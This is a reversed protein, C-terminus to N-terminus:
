SAVSFGSPSQALEGTIVVGCTAASTGAGAVIRVLIYRKSGRYGFSYVTDAELATPETGILDGAAVATFGSGSADSEQLEISYDEAGVTAGVSVVVM